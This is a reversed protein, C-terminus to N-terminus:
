IPHFIVSKLTIKNKSFGRFHSLNQAMVAIVSAVSNVPRAVSIESNSFKSIDDGM